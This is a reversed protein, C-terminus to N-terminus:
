FIWTRLLAAKPNVGSIVGAAAAGRHPCDLCRQVSRPTQSRTRQQPQAQQQSLREICLLKYRSQPRRRADWMRNSQSAPCVSFPLRLAWAAM